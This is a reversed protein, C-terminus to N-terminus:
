HANASCSDPWPVIMALRLFPDFTCFRPFNRLPLEALRPLARLTTFDAFAVFRATALALGLGAGTFFAARFTFCGTAGTTSVTAASTISCVVGPTIATVSTSSIRLAPQRLRTHSLRLAWFSNRMERSPNISTQNNPPRQNARSPPPNPVPSRLADQGRTLNCFESIRGRVSGSLACFWRRSYLSM